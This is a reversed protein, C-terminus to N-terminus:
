LIPCSLIHSSMVSYSVVPCSLSLQVSFSLVFCAHVPRSPFPFSLVYCFLITPPPCSLIFSSKFSCARYSLIDYLLGLCSTSSIVAYSSQNHYSLASSSLVVFSQVSCSLPPVLLILRSMLLFIFFPCSM